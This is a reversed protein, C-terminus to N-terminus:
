GEGPLVTLTIPLVIECGERQLGSAVKLHKKRDPYWVGLRLVHDGPALDAPLRLSRENMVPWGDRNIAEGERCGIGEAVLFDDQAVMRDGAFVHLYAIPRDLPPNRWFYRVTVVEGPHVAEPLLTLGELYIGDGFEAKAAVAIRTRREFIERLEAAEAASMGGAELRAAMVGPHEPFLAAARALWFRVRDTSGVERLRRRANALILAVRGPADWSSRFVRHGYWALDHDQWFGFTHGAEPVVLAWPVCPTVAGDWGLAALTERTAALDEERVLLGCPERLDVPWPEARPYQMVDGPTRGWIAPERPTWIAGDSWAALRNAAWREAYVRRLGLRTAAEFAAALGAEGAADSGGSGPGYLSVEYPSFFRRGGDFRARIRVADARVPPVDMRAHYGSVDGYLRPGSWITNNAFPVRGLERWAGDTDRADFSWDGPYFREGPCFFVVRSIEVPEHLQIELVADGNTSLPLAVGTMMDRDTVEKLRDGPEGNATVSRWREPPIPVAAPPPPRIDHVVPIGEVVSVVAGGGTAEIFRIGGGTDGMLAVRAAADAIREDPNYRDVPWDVIPERERTHFNLWSYWMFSGYFAEADQTTMFRELALAIRDRSSEHTRILGWAQQANGSFYTLVAALWLPVLVRGTRSRVARAMAAATLVAIPLYMPLAYRAARTLAYRSCGASFLYLALFALAAGAYVAPGVSLGGGRRRALARVIWVVAVGWLVIMGAGAVYAVPEKFPGLFGLFGDGPDLVDLFRPLIVHVVEGLGQRLCGLSASEAMGLSGWDHRLNWIWWPASGALGGAVLFLAAAGTRRRFWGAAALGGAVVLAPLVMASTWWGLGMALGLVLADRRDPAGDAALAIRCGWVLVFAMVVLILAYGGRPSIMYYDYYTPGFVAFVAAFVAAPRGAIRGAWLAALPILGIGAVVTGLNVTLVSTGFLRCFLASLTPEASGMYAQGYFFVPWDRGGAIHAAMRAVIGWDGSVADRYAWSLLIRGGLAFVMVAALWVADKRRPFSNACAPGGPNMRARGHEIRTWGPM